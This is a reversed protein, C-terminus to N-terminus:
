YVGQSMPAKEKFNIRARVLHTRIIKKVRSFCFSPKIGAQIKM